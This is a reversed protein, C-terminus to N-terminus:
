ITRTLLLIKPLFLLCGIIVAIISAMLVAAAAVDKAIKADKRIDPSVLNVVSEISTNILELALVLAITFLLLVWEVVSLKVLVGIVLAAIGIAFHIQLNPENKIALKIGEIAYGFSEKTSGLRSM